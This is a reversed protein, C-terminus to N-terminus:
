LELKTRFIGSCVKEVHKEFIKSWIAGMKKWREYMWTLLGVAGRDRMGGLRSTRAARRHRGLNKILTMLALSWNL